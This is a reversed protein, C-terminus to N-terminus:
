EINISWVAMQFLNKTHCKMKSFQWFPVMKVMNNHHNIKQKWQGSDTKTRFVLIFRFEWFISSAGGERGYNGSHQTAITIDCNWIAGYWLKM